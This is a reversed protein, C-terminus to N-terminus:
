GFLAAAADGYPGGGAGSRARGLGALGDQTRDRPTRPSPGCRLVAGSRPVTRPLDPVDYCHFRDPWYSASVKAFHAAAAALPDGQVAHARLPVLVQDQYAQRLAPGDLDDHNALLHAAHHVRAYGTQIPPWLATTTEM